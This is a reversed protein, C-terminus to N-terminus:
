PNTSTAEPFSSSRYGSRKGERDLYKEFWEGAMASVEELQGPGEFLHGAAEVLQLEVRTKAMMEQADENLTIVETDESGVILLTPALVEELYTDALDPRGGRSVVAGIGSRVRAAAILAAAAGTSAGFYGVKLGEFEKRALMWRTALELRNALLPIDFRHERTALDREEEERTLLDFLLTAFGRQQLAFAVQQNRPSKRGSGSGHAFIVLGRANSPVVLDGGLVSENVRIEIDSM